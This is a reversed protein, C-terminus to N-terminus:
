VFIPNTDNKFVLMKVKEVKQNGIIVDVETFGLIDKIKGEATIAKIKTKDYPKIELGIAQAVEVSIM